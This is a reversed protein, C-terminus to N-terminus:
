KEEEKTNRWICLMSPFPANNKAAGYKLRGAIFRLQAKGYVWTHFWSTDVRAPALMVVVEAGSCACKEVWKSIERGYPPNCFVREGEWSQLLGDENKTFHKHCKANEHTCCPDLTFHFENNLQDFLSQPTEWEETRSSYLTKSILEHGGEHKGCVRRAVGLLM